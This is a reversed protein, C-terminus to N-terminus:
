VLANVFDVEEEITWHGRRVSRSPGSHSVPKFRFRHGAQGSYATLNGRDDYSQTLGDVTAYQNLGNSVYGDTFATYNDWEYDTNSTTRQTIQSAVNYDFTLTVDDSSGILDNVLSDLDGAADFNYTTDVGNGGELTKRRGELVDTGLSGRIQAQRRNRRALSDSPM